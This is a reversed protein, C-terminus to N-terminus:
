QLGHLLHLALLGSHLRHHHLLGHHHSGRSWLGDYNGCTRTELLSCVGGKLTVEGVAGVNTGLSTVPFSIRAVAFITSTGLLVALVVLMDRSLNPMGLMLRNLNLMGTAEGTLVRHLVVLAIISFGTGNDAHNTKDNEENNDADKDCDKENSSSALVM